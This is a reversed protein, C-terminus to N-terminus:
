SKRLRYQRQKETGLKQNLLRDVESMKGDSISRARQKIQEIYEDLPMPLPLDPLFDDVGEESLINQIFKEPLDKLTLVGGEPFRRMIRQIWKELERVNGPWDFEILKKIIEDHLIMPKQSYRTIFYNILLPIDQYRSCLPPMEIIEDFRDKLDQAFLTSDNFNKNTAALIQTKIIEVEQSGIKRIEGNTLYRLLANQGEMPLNGIEDLFLMRQDSEKLIGKRTEIAGTFAGKVYGFLEATVLDKSFTGCDFTNLKNDSENHYLRWIAEAVVQKGTGREGTILVHTSDDVDYLIQEKINQIAKSQSILEPIKQDIENIRNKESLIDKERNIITLQRKVVTPATIQPFDDIDLNVEQTSSGRERAFKTEFAQILKSKPILGSKHLLVWCATMTPTGSTVNIIKEAKRLAQDEFLKQTEDLMVPYVLDFDIPNQLNIDILTVHLGPNEALMNSKNQEAIDRYIFSESKRASTVFIFVQKIGDKYDLFIKLAAGFSQGATLQDHNGVFTLYIM